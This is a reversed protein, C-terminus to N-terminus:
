RSGRATKIDEHWGALPCLIEDEPTIGDFINEGLWNTSVNMLCFFVFDDNKVDLFSVKPFVIIVSDYLIM